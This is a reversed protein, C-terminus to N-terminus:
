SLNNYQNKLYDSRLKLHQLLLKDQNKEAIRIMMSMSVIGNDLLNDINRIRTIINEKLKPTEILKYKYLINALKSDSPIESSEYVVPNNEIVWEIIDYQLPNMELLLNLTKQYNIRSIEQIESWLPKNHVLYFGVIPLINHNLKNGYILIMKLKKVDNSNHIKLIFKEMTINNPIFLKKYLIMEIISLDKIELFLEEDVNILKESILHRLIEIENLKMSRSFLQDVTVTELIKNILHPWYNPRSIEWAFFKDYEAKAIIEQYNM